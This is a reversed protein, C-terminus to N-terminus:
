RDVIICDAQRLCRSVWDFLKGRAFQRSKACPELGEVGFLEVSGNLPIRAGAFEIRMCFFRKGRVAGPARAVHSANRKELIRPRRRPM